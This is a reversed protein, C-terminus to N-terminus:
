KRRKRAPETIDEDDITLKHRKTFEYEAEKDEARKRAEEENIRDLILFKAYQEAYYMSKGENVEEEFIEAMRRIREESVTRYTHKLRLYELEYRANRWKSIDRPTNNRIQNAESTNMHLGVALGAFISAYNESAGLKVFQDFIEVKERISGRDKKDKVLLRAYESAYM